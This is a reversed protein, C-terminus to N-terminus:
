RGGTVADVIELGAPGVEAVYLRPAVLDRSGITDDHPAPRRRALAIGHDAAGGDPDAHLVRAYRHIAEYVTESLATISPAWAGYADRYRALLDDNGPLPNDQFYGLATRLGAGARPGIHALTSEELVLSVTRVSRRLGATESQREFAVEDAGVLTSLVLDAGSRRIHEVTDSFDTTGLPALVEGAVHGGADAVARYAAAHAGHSWVYSQGVLFWRRAGADRM